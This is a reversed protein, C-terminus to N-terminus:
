VYILTAFIPQFSSIVHQDLQPFFLKSCVGTSQINTWHRRFAVCYYAVDVIFSDNSKWRIIESQFIYGISNMCVFYLKLIFSCLFETCSLLYKFIVLNNLVQCFVSYIIAYFLHFIIQCNLIFIHILHVWSLMCM